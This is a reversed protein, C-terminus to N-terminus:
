MLIELEKRLMQQFVTQQNEETKIAKIDIAKKEDLVKAIEKVLANSDM